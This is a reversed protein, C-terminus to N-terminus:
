SWERLLQRVDTVGFLAKCRQEADEKLNSECFFEVKKLRNSPLLVQASWRYPSKMVILDRWYCIGQRIFYRSSSLRDMWVQRSM